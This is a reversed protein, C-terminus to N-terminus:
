CSAHLWSAPSFTSAFLAFYPSLLIVSERLLLEFLPSDPRVVGRWRAM